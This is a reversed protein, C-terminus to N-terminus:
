AAADRVWFLVEDGARRIVVHKHLRRAAASLRLRLVRVDEGALPALRGEDGVELGGVFEVYRALAASASAEDALRMAEELSLKFFQPM